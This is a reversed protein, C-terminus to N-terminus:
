RCTHHLSKIQIEYMCVVEETYIHNFDHLFSVSFLSFKFHGMIRVTYPIHPIKGCRRVMEQYRFYFNKQFEMNSGIDYEAM